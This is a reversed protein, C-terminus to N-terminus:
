SESEDDLVTVEVCARKGQLLKIYQGEREPGPKFQKTM